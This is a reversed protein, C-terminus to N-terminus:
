RKADANQDEFARYVNRMLISVTVPGVGGPVPTISSAKKSVEEFSVDGMIKGDLHNIGVDIVVAGDKVWDAKVMEAKGVAVVLIDARKTHSKIDGKESTAIQCVTTTAFENLMMLSLPKGVIPSHGILVVEKGYLNIGLSSIIKMVAGPTCPVLHADRRLIRGLNGPHIGEADKSPLISNIIKDHDLHKPLPQQIIIASVSKDKNLKEIQKILDTEKIAGDLKITCFDIGVEKAAKEQMKVYIASEDQVGVSISVLKPARGYRAAAEKTKESVVALLKKAIERGNIINAM